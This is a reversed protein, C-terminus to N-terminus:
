KNGVTMWWVSKQSTEYGGGRKYNLRHLYVKFIFVPLNISWSNTSRFIQRLHKNTTMCSWNEQSLNFSAWSLVLQQLHWHTLETFTPWLYKFMNWTVFLYASNNNKQKQLEHMSISFGKSCKPFFIIFFAPRTQTKYVVTVHLSFYVRRNMCFNHKKKITATWLFSKIENELHWFIVSTVYFAAWIFLKGGAATCITGGGFQLVGIVGTAQISFSVVVSHSDNRDTFSDSMFITAPWMWRM